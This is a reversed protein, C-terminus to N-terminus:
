KCVAALEKDPKSNPPFKLKKVTAMQALLTGGYKLGLDPDDQYAPDKEAEPLSVFKVGRSRYLAILEPLMKADFAGIHVLLVYPIERGYVEQSLERYVRLYEDAAALYSTRLWEISKASDEGGKTVCRAYPANWLYDGFEMNVQAVKYGHAFLYARVARRKELTDGESLFPYRLWRWDQGAALSELLPENKAIDEEFEEATHDNISMHSWTHSGLPQGAARWAKLVEISGPERVTGIGNVMGYTPPMHNAALTALISKAVDLRTEGHPLMSHVPLDDFTFAIEQAGSWGAFLVALGVVCSRLVQSQLKM